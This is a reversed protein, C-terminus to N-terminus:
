VRVLVIGRSGRAPSHREHFFRLSTLRAAGIALAAPLPRTMSKRVTDAELTVGMAWMVVFVIGSRLLTMELLAQLHTAALYGGIYCIALATLFWHKTLRAWM